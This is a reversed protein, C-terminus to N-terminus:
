SLLIMFFPGLPLCPMGAERNDGWPFRIADGEASPLAFGGLMTWLWLGAVAVIVMGLSIIVSLLVASEGHVRAARRQMM